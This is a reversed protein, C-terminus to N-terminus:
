LFGTAKSDFTRRNGSADCLTIKGKVINAILPTHNALVGLYGLEAPAILSQVQGKYILSKPTIIELNFTKAM